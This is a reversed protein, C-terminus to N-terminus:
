PPLLHDIVVAHTQAAQGPGRRGPRQRRLPLLVTRRGARRRALLGGVPGAGQGAALELTGHKGLHVIADAGWGEDLWRYFALYHHAPPLNPSHYVAVPNDGIAGRPPQIAVLVNGLELGSFLLRGADIRHVGPAPGWQAEFSTVPRGGAPLRVLRRVQDTDLGGVALARQTDGLQDADYTMGDALRAM